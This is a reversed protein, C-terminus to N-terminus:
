PPAAEFLFCLECSYKVANSFNQIVFTILRVVVATLMDLVSHFRVSSTVYAYLDIGM